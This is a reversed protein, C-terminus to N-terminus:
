SSRTIARQIASGLSQNSYPPEGIEKFCTEVFDYFKGYYNPEKYGLTAQEGIGDEYIKALDAIYAERASHRPQGGKDKQVEKLADEAASKFM